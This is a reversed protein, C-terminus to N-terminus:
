IFANPQRYAVCKSINETIGFFSHLQLKRSGVPNFIFDRQMWVRFAWKLGLVPCTSFICWLGKFVTVNQVHSLQLTFSLLKILM